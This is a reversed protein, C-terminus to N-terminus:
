IKVKKIEKINYFVELGLKLARKLERDAGPSWKMYLIADCADLWAFGLRMFDEYKIDARKEWGFCHKHPMFPIHGKKLLEIGLEEVLRTWHAPNETYPAAIYIKM